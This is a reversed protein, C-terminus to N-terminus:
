QADHWRKRIFKAPNGGYICDPPLNKHVVSGPTVITNEGIQVGRLVICRTTVWAGQRINVPEVLLDMSSHIDHSGTTIFSEQSLVVNEEITVPAQNHIWVGEGIWCKDAISLNWPFKVRLRPRLIVNEGIRAGFIRLVFRRVRSSVQLPNYVCFLEVLIWLAEIHRGRTRRFNGLTARSLDVPEHTIEERRQGGDAM